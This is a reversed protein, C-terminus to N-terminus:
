SADGGRIEGYRAANRSKYANLQVIVNTNDIYMYIRSLNENDM